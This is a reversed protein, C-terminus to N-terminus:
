ASFVSETKELLKEATLWDNYDEGHNGGRREYLSYAMRRINSEKDKDGTLEVSAKTGDRSEIILFRDIGDDDKDLWVSDPDKITVSPEFISDPNGSITCLKIGDIFRGKKELALGIFSEGNLQSNQDSNELSIYTPRHQNDKSFKKCFRSWTNRKIEKTM